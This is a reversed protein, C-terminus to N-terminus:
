PWRPIDLGRAKVPTLMMGGVTQWTDDSLAPVGVDLVSEQAPDLYTGFLRDWCSFVVGFNSNIQRAETSHHIKQIDPTALIWGLSRELWDIRSVSSHQFMAWPNAIIARAGEVWLPIGLGHLIAVILVVSISVEVPHARLATSADLSTDSHHVAHLRWLWRWRHSIRHLWYAMFDLLVFGIAFCALPSLEFPTLLGNSASLRYPTDFLVGLVLGDAILVVLAFLGLNRLVHRLRASTPKDSSVGGELVVLFVFAGFSSVLYAQRIWDLWQENLM